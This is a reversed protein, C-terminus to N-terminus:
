AAAALIGLTKAPDTRLIVIREKILYASCGVGEETRIRRGECNLSSEPFVKAERCLIALVTSAAMM